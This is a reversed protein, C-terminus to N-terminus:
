IIQSFKLVASLYIVLKTVQFAIFNRIDALLDSHRAGLGEGVVVGDGSSQAAPFFLSEEEEVGEEERVVATVVRNRAKIRALLDASTMLQGSNGGKKKGFRKAMVPSPRELGPRHCDRRSERLAKVAAKAASAAEAELLAHDAADDDVIADHRLASHIGGTKAFLKALVYADQGAATKSQDDNEAEPPGDATVPPRFPRVKTLHPVRTGEFKKDKKQKRREERSRKDSSGPQPLSPPEPSKERSGSPSCTSFTDPSLSSSSPGTPSSASPPTSEQHQKAKFIQSNIKRARERLEERLKDSLLSPAPSPSLEASKSTEDSQRDDTAAEAAYLRALSRKVDPRTSEPRSVAALPIAAREEEKHRHKRALKPM